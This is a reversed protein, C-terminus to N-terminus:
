PVFIDDRMLEKLAQRTDWNDHELLRQLAKVDFQLDNAAPGTTGMPKGGAVQGPLHGSIDFHGSLTKVRQAVSADM